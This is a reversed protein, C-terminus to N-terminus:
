FCDGLQKGEKSVMEAEIDKKSKKQIYIKSTSYSPLINVSWVNFFMFFAGLVQLCGHVKGKVAFTSPVKSSEKDETIHALDTAEPDVPATKGKETFM